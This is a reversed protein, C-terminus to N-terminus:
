KCAFADNYNEVIRKCRLISDLMGEWHSGGKWLLFFYYDYYMFWYHLAYTTVGITVGQIGWWGSIGGQSSGVEFSGDSVGM